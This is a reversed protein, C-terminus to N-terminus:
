LDCYKKYLTTKKEQLSLRENRHAQEENKSEKNHHSIKKYGDKVEQIKQSLKKLSENLATVKSNKKAQKEKLRKVECEKEALIVRYVKLEEESLYIEYELHLTSEILAQLENKSNYQEEEGEKQMKKFYEGLEAETLSFELDM